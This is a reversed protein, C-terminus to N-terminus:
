LERILSEKIVWLKCIAEPLIKGSVIECGQGGLYFSCNACIMGEKVFPHKEMYHAGDAGNGQDWKGYKEAVDEFLEYMEIQRAKLGDTNDSM